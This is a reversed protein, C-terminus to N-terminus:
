TLEVLNFLGCSSFTISAAYNLRGSLAAVAEQKTAFVDWLRDLRSVALVDKCFPTVGSIAFRGDRSKLRSWAGFALSFFPTGAVKTYPIDLVLLPPHAAEAARQINSELGVVKVEDLIEFEPGLSIVTVGDIQSIEIKM